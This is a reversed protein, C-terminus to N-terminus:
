FLGKILKVLGESAFVVITFRIFKGAMSVFFYNWFRYKIIGAAVALPSLPPVSTVSSVFIVPAGIRKYKTMDTKDIKDQVKKSVKLVGRGMFYFFSSGFTSGIATAFGLLLGSEAKYNSLNITWWLFKFAPVQDVNAMASLTLECNPFWFASGTFGFLAMLLYPTLVKM